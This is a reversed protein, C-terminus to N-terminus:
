AVLVQQRRKMLSAAIFAKPTIDRMAQGVVAKWSFAMGDSGSLCRLFWEATDHMGDHRHDWVWTARHCRIQKMTLGWGRAARDSIEM